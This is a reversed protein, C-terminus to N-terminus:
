VNRWLYHHFHRGDQGCHIRKARWNGLECQLLQDGPDCSSFSFASSLALFMIKHNFRINFGDWETNNYICMFVQKKILCV